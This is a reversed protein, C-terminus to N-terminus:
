GDGQSSIAATDVLEELLRQAAVGQLAFPDLSASPSFKLITSRNVKSLNVKGMRWSSFRRQKIESYDLLTVERHRSDQVITNYLKNVQERGGELVQLFTDGSEYICLVGTVGLQANNKRASELITEAVAESIFENSRSAYLLRVLM